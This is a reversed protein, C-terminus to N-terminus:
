NRKNGNFARNFRDNIYLAEVLTLDFLAFCCDDCGEKCRVSDSHSQEVRNFANQARYAFVVYQEFFPTPDFCM